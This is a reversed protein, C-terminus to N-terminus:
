SVHQETKNKIPMIDDMQVKRYSTVKPQLPETKYKLKIEEILEQMEPFLTSKTINMSGLEELMTEKVTNKIEYLKIDVRRCKHEKSSRYDRAGFLLFGGSQAKIRPNNIKASVCIGGNLDKNINKVYYSNSCSSREKNILSMLDKVAEEQKKKEDERMKYEMKSNFEDNLKETLEEGMAPVILGKEKMDTNLMALNAYMSVLYDDPSFVKSANIVFFEGNNDKHKEEICAFYLAVYPNLTIDLLRTPLGYHQLKVLSDFTTKDEELFYAYKSFADRVMNSENQIYGDDRFLSPILENYHKNQGRFLLTSNSKKSCNEKKIVDQFEKFTGIEGVFQINKYKENNKM